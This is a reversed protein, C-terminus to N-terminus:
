DFKIGADQVLAKWKAIEDRNFQAFKAGRLNPLVQQGVRANAKAIEPDSLVATLADTIRSVIAPPTGSSVFAGAWAVTEAAPYGEERITPVDPLMPVRSPGAVALARLKGNRILPMSTVPYDFLVDVDGAILDNLAPAAGKYPVHTVKIGAAAILLEATLHGASGPSPNAFNVKGPNARAFAILEKVNKYPRSPNAVLIPSVGYLAHVAIFDRAPDYPLNKFTVVNAANTSQTGMLITHGDPKAHIVKMAAVAGGAGPKNDVIVSQGLHDQLKQAIQRAATDMIGGPSVPVVWEVPKSPLGQAQLSTVTGAGAIAYAVLHLCAQVFIRYTMSAEETGVRSNTEDLSDDARRARALAARIM